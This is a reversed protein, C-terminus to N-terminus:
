TYEIKFGKDWETQARVGRARPNEGIPYIEISYNKCNSNEGLNIPHSIKKGFEITSLNLKTESEIIGDDRINYKEICGIKHMWTAFAYGNSADINIAFGHSHLDFPASKNANTSFRFNTNSFSM